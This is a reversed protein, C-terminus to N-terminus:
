YMCTVRWFLNSKNRLSAMVWILFPLEGHPFSPKKQDFQAKIYVGPCRVIQHVIVRPSGNIIFTGHQTMLPLDCFTVPLIRSLDLCKSVIHVPVVLASTYTEMSRIAEEPTHTPRKFYFDQALFSVSISRTTPQSVSTGSPDGKIPSVFELERRIGTELFLRFSKRQSDLFDPIAAKQRFLIM